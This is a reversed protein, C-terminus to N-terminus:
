MYVIARTGGSMVRKDAITPAGPRFIAALLSDEKLTAITQNTVDGYVEVRNLAIERAQFNTIHIEYVLLLRGNAKVPTPLIPIRIEVPANPAAQGYATEFNLLIAVFLVAFMWKRSHRLM